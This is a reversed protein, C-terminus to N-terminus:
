HVARLKGAPSGQVRKSVSTQIDDSERRQLHGDNRQEPWFLSVSILVTFFFFFFFCVNSFSLCKALAQTCYFRLIRYLVQVTIIAIKLIQLMLKWPKRGRARYKECPNMFFYKLRRRFDDVVKSELSQIHASWRCNLRREEESRAAVLQECDEMVSLYTSLTNCDTNKRMKKNLISVSCMM